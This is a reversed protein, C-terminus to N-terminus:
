SFNNGIRAHASSDIAAEPSPRPLSEALRLCSALHSTFLSVRSSCRVSVRWARTAAITKAARLANGSTM